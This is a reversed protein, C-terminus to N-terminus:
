FMQSPLGPFLISCVEDFTKRGMRMGLRPLGVELLAAHPSCCGRRCLRGNSCEGEGAMRAFRLLQDGSGVARYVTNSQAASYNIGIQPTAQVQKCRFLDLPVREHQLLRHRQRRRARATCGKLKCHLKSPWLDLLRSKLCPEPVVGLSCVRSLAFLFSAGNALLEEFVDEEYTKEM